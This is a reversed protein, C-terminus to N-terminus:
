KVSEKVAVVHIDSNSKSIGKIKFKASNSLFDISYDGFTNIGNGMLIPAIFLQLEDIMQLRAFSSFVSRGGEVMISTIYYKSSLESLLYTIDINGHENLRSPLINIGANKLTEAKRSKEVDPNCCVITKQETSYNFVHNSLPLSLNTDLIIRIPNRGKVDRVNLLPNDLSATNKGILVADVSSRLLHTRRRSGDSSIWKSEGRSTAICGDLSQASKVIIYPLGTTIYKAFFRNIWYCEDQLIGVTVDIGANKLIEIGKGSVEPNPDVMGIVVRAFNKEIILPTCPPTKGYRTCPELTVILTANSFDGINSNNIAIVEAHPGGFEKHWGEGVIEGDELIVAGVRPNPSVKGTGRLALILAHRMAQEDTM